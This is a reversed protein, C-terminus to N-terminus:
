DLIDGILVKLLAQCPRIDVLGGEADFECLDEEVDALELISDIFQVLGLVM